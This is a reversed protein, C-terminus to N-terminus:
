KPSPKQYSSHPCQSATLYWPIRDHVTCGRARTWWISMTRGIVTVDLLVDVFKWFERGALVMLESVGCVKFSNWSAGPTWTLLCMSSSFRHFWGSWVVPGKDYIFRVRHTCPHPPINCAKFFWPRRLCLITLTKSRFSNQHSHSGLLLPLVCHELFRQVVETDMAILLTVVLIIKTLAPPTRIQDWWKQSPCSQSLQNGWDKYKLKKWTASLPLM